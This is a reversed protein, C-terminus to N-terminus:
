NPSMPSVGYGLAPGSLGFTKELADILGAWGEFMCPLQDSSSKGMSSRYDNTVVDCYGDIANSAAEVYSLGFPTGNLKPTPARQQKLKYIDRTSESSATVNMSSYGTFPLDGSTCRVPSSYVLSRSSRGTATTSESSATAASVGGISSSSLTSPRPYVRCSEEPSTTYKSTRYDGVATCTTPSVRITSTVVGRDPGNDAKQREDCVPPIQLLSGQQQLQQPKEESIVGQEQEHEMAAVKQALAKSRKKKSPRQRSKEKRNRRRQEDAPIACASHHCRDCAAGERCGRSSYAFWCGRGCNLTTCSGVSLEGLITDHAVAEAYSAPSLPEGVPHSKRPTSPHDDSPLRLSTTKASDASQPLQELSGASQM